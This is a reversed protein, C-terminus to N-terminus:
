AASKTAGAHEVPEWCQCGEVDHLQSIHKDGTLMNVWAPDGAEYRPIKVLTKPHGCSVWDTMKIDIYSNHRCTRCDMNLM